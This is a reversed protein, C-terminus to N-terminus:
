ASTDALWAYLRREEMDKDGSSGHGLADTTELTAHAVKSELWEAHLPLIIPDQPDYWIATPVDITGPDFCWDAFLALDDDVWGWIGNRTQEIAIARDKEDTEEERLQLDERVLEAAYREEGALIWEVYKLVEPHADRYWDTGLAAYPAAGAISAVRTIRAGLLAAVALAHPGGASSGRIAFRDIGLADAITAVDIVCDAISRGRKRDSGGYGPRDYTVLRVGAARAAAAREPRVLRCGPTGHLSFVPVGDRQGWEAFTLVRGDSTSVSQATLDV